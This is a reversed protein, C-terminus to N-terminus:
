RAGKVDRGAPLLGDLLSQLGLEFVADLDLDFDKAGLLRAFTPYRGSGVLEYLKAEERNMWEDNTMGTHQQAQAESEFNMGLSRVFSFMTVHITLIEGPTLGLGDLARMVWETHDLGNPSLQPRTISMAPALWPHRRFITWQLRSILELQARAGPPQKTPLPHDGIVADIMHLLLDDKGRVYRYLSMTALNLETGIRRMSLADLGEADALEIAVRVIQERTPEADTVRQRQKRPAAPGSDAGSRVNRVRTPNGRGPSSPPQAVVTGIGPMATVLGEARLTALVKTATAIAVGWDSTIQRASPVRDGPRLRGAVIQARIQTVIQRYPPEPASSVRVLVGSPRPEPSTVAM